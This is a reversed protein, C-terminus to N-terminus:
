EEKLEFHAHLFGEDYDDSDLDVNEIPFGRVKLTKVFVKLETQLLEIVEEKSM